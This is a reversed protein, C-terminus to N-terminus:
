KDGTRVLHCVSTSIDACFDRPMKCGRGLTCQGLIQPRSVPSMDKMRFGDTLCVSEGM